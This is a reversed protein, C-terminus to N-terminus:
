ARDHRLKIALRIGVVPALAHSDRQGEIDAKAYHEQRNGPSDGRATGEGGRDGEDDSPNSNAIARTRRKATSTASVSAAIPLPTVPM